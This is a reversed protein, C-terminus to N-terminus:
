WYTVFYDSGSTVVQSLILALFLIFLICCNGGAAFYSTWVKFSVGGEAQHEAAQRNM